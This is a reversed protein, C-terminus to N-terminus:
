YSKNAPLKDIKLSTTGNGAAVGDKSFVKTGFAADSAVEFTYTLATAGSTVANRVTLTLPQEVNKFQQNATPTVAAPATLTVGTSADTVSATASSATTESPRTPSEKTCALTVAFLAFASWIGLTRLKM